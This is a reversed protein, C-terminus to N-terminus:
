SITHIILSSTSRVCKGITFQSMEERIMIQRYIDNAPNWMMEFFADCNMDLVVHAYEVHPELVGVEFNDRSYSMKEDSAKEHHSKHHKKRGHRNKCKKSKKKKKSGATDIETAVTVIEAIIPSSM